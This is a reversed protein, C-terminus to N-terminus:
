QYKKQYETRMKNLEYELLLSEDDPSLTSGANKLALIRGIESSYTGKCNESHSNQKVTFTAANLFIEVDACYIKATDPMDLERLSSVALLLGFNELQNGSLSLKKLASSQSLSTIDTIENHSFDLMELRNLKSVPTIDVIENNALNLERLQQLGAIGQLSVIGRETCSLWELQDVQDISGSSTPPLQARELAQESICQLLATDKLNLQAISQKVMKIQFEIADDLSDAFRQEKHDALWFLFNMGLVPLLFVSIVIILIVISFSRSLKIESLKM